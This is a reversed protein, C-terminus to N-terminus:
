YLQLNYMILTKKKMKHKKQNSVTPGKRKEKGSVIPGM